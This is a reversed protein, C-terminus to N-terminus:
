LRESFSWMYEPNLMYSLIHLCHTIKLLQVPQVTGYLKGHVVSDANVRFHQKTGFCYVNELHQELM